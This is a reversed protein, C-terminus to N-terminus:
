LWQDLDYISPLSLDAQESKKWVMVTQFGKRKAPIIDQSDSDGIYIHEIPKHKTLKIIKAFSKGNAKGSGASDGFVSYKFDNEPNLGLKELKLFADQKASATILFLVYKEQLYRILGLLKEDKKLYLYMKSNISARMAFQEPQNIGMAKAIECGGSITKRYKAFEKQAKQYSIKFESEMLKCWADRFTDKIKQSEKYLTLDLDLGVFKISSPHIM